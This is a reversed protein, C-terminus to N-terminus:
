QSAFFSCVLREVVGYKTYIHPLLLLIIIVVLVV